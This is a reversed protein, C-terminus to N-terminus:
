KPLRNGIIKSFRPAKEFYNSFSAMGAAGGGGPATGGGVAGSPPRPPSSPTKKLSNKFFCETKGFIRFDGTM